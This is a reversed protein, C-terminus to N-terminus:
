RVVFQVPVRFEWPKAADPPPVFPSSGKVAAVAAADLRPYGSSSLVRPEETLDGRGDLRFALLVTGEQGRTRAAYPYNKHGDVAERLRELYEGVASDSSSGSSGSTSATDTGSGNEPSPDSGNATESSTSTQSQSSSESRGTAASSVAPAPSAAHAPAATRFSLSTTGVHAMIKPPAPRLTVLVFALSHVLFAAALWPWWSHASMM